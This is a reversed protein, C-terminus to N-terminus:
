SAWFINDLGDFDILEVSGSSDTIEIVGSQNNLEIFNLTTDTNVFNDGQISTIEGNIIEILTDPGLDVNIIWDGKAASMNLNLTDEGLGGSIELSSDNGTFAYNFIDNDESFFVTLDNDEGSDSSYSNNFYQPSFGEDRTAIEVGVSGTITDDGYISDNDAIGRQYDEGNTGYYYEGNATSEFQHTKANNSIDTYNILGFDKDTEDIYDSFNFGSM